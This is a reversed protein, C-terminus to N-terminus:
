TKINYSATDQKWRKVEKEVHAQLELPSGAIVQTGKSALKAKIESATLFKVLESNL